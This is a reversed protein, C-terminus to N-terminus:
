RASWSARVTARVQPTMPPLKGQQLFNVDFGWARTPPNYVTGTGPWPHTAYQSQFLVVISGNYSLTDGSWSELLRLFNEVGGSYNTGNSPIIGELCAANITTATANRSGIATTSTNTDNWNASLVTIADGMLAAPLTNTVDGLATSFNVGNTTTNFNGKVYIPFPSAVTLGNPYPLQQGNVVRVAPLVGPSGSAPPISNYVYVGDINHGKSTSVGAGNNQNQYNAANANTGLWTNLKSVDLQVAKVNDGERYDYFQVNTVFSYYLNTTHNIININTVDQPVLTQPNANDLNQYYVSLTGGASNSVILDADNYLYAQGTPSAAATGAPPIGLLGMVTAPNNNTGIPLSFSSTDSNPNPYAGNTSVTFVLNGSRNGYNQPDLPDPTTYFQQSADVDSSFTLPSGSSDGTAYINNNSHVRGNINMAAGPNIEMDMNYFIAFQFLPISGVWFTQDVIASLNAGMNLPTAQSAVECMQGLGYLNTYQSPLQSWNTPGIYVSTANSNGNTDSYQYSIPWGSQSPLNTANAYTAAPNMSQSNFDRMMTAMVLETGSEAAGEAQTFLINRKTLNANSSVWYMLSAYSMLAVTLFALTVILAYGGTAPRSIPQNLQM